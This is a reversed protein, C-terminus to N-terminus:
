LRHQNSQNVPIESIKLIYLTEQYQVSVVEWHREYTLRSTDCLIFCIQKENLFFDQLMYLYSYQKEM